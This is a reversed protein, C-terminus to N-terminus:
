EEKYRRAVECDESQNEGQRRYGPSYGLVASGGIETLLEASSSTNGSIVIRGSSNLTYGQASAFDSPVSL